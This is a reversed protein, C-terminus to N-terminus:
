LVTLQWLFSDTKKTIGALRETSRKDEQRNDTEKDVEGSGREPWARNWRLKFNYIKHKGNHEAKSELREVTQLVLVVSSVATSSCAAM